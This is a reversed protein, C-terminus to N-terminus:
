PWQEYNGKCFTEWKRKKFNVKHIYTGGMLYVNERFRYSHAAAVAAKHAKHPGLQSSHKVRSERLHYQHYFFDMVFPIKSRKSM